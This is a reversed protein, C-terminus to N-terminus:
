PVGAGAPLNGRPCVDAAFTRPRPTSTGRAPRYTRSPTGDGAYRADGAWASCVDDLIQHKASPNRSDTELAVDVPAIRNGSADCVQAGLEFMLATGPASLTYAPGALAGAPPCPAGMLTHLKRATGIQGQLTARGVASQLDKAGLELLADIIRDRGLNAAYTMPPGWNSKRITADEHLLQPNKVILSLVAPVDNRWIADILECGQVLRPWSPSQYSRALVLQANALKADAPDVKDPHYRELEAIASPDGKRIARLLDKAQHKLQQLDPRVPLHRDPM